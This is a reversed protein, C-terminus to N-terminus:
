FKRSFIERFFSAYNVHNKAAERFIESHINKVKIHTINNQLIYNKLGEEYDDKCEFDVIKGNRAYTLVGYLSHKEIRSELGGFDALTHIHVNKVGLPYLSQPTIGYRYIGMAEEYLKCLNHFSLDNIEGKKLVLFLCTALKSNQQEVEAIIKRM